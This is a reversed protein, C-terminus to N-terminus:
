NKKKKFLRTPEITIGISLNCTRVKPYETHFGTTLSLQGDVKIWPYKPLAFQLNFYPEWLAFTKNTMKDLYFYSLESSDYSTNVSYYNLFSIKGGISFHVLDIPMFNFSGQVFYKTMKVDYFRTYNIRNLDLGADAISMKELSVGAYLNYTVTKHHNLPFFYGVALEETNRKYHVVSSDFINVQDYGFIGGGYINISDFGSVQHQQQYTYAAMLALHNSIAYGAQINFGDNKKNGDGSYYGTLKSDGKQKFYNINAAQSAYVSRSSRKFCSSFLTVAIILLCFHLKM